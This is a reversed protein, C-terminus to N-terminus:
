DTPSEPGLLVVQRHKVDNGQFLQVEHTTTHVRGIPAGKGELYISAWDIGKASLDLLLSLEWLVNFQAIIQNNQFLLRM